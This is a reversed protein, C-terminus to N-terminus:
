AMGHGGVLSGLQDVAGEVQHVLPELIQLGEGELALVLGQRIFETLPPVRNTTVDVQHDKGSQRTGSAQQGPPSGPAVSLWLLGRRLQRLLAHHPRSQVMALAECRKLSFLLSVMAAM